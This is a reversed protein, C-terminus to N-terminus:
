YKLNHHSLYCDKFRLHNVIEKDYGLKKLHMTSVELISKPQRWYLTLSGNISASLLWLSKFKRQCDTLSGSLVGEAMLGM